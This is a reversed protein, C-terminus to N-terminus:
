VFIGGLGLFGEDGYEWMPVRCNLADRAANYAASAAAEASLGFALSSRLVRAYTRTSVIRAEQQDATLQWEHM